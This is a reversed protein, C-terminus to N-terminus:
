VPAMSGAPPPAMAPGQARAIHEGLKQCSEALAKHVAAMQALRKLAM